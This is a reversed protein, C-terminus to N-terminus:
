PYRWENSGRIIEYLTWEGRKNRKMRKYEGHQRASQRRTYKCPTEDDRMQKIQRKWRSVLQCESSDSNTSQNNSSADWHVKSCLFDLACRMQYEVAQEITTENAFLALSRSSILNWKRWSHVFSRTLSGIFSHSFCNTHNAAFAIKLWLCCYFSSSFKFNLNAM